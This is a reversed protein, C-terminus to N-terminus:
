PAPPASGGPTFRQRVWGRFQRVLTNEDMQGRLALFNGVDTPTLQPFAVSNSQVQYHGNADLVHFTLAQGELRWVEPVGLAAYIALRDLSSHTVDIELALDPPPDRRLDIQDRGRVLPESAIWYSEDPELGRRRRRRRFTTSGGGKLPLGLEETLAVVLRGLLHGLSEHEHSLTMLELTGRDYTLRVGPRDAFARLLRGYTRWSVGQLLFRQESPAHFTPM